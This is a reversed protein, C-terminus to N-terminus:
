NHKKKFIRILMKKCKYKVKKMLGYNCKNPYGGMKLWEKYNKGWQENKLGNWFKPQGYAHIIKAQEQKEIESPHPAYIEPAMPVIKLNFKQIVFDFIAQEPLYLKKAYRKVADYCFSYMEQYNELNDQLVFTGTGVCEANMDYDAIEEHLQTSVKKGSLMMKIGSKCPAFLESIDKQIVIDYDLWLVNKYENLLRFCEFKTFVMKSFYKLTGQNFISTDKVPFEYDIFRSPLISNLLQQQEPKIGDHIIVIEDALGPCIKKLDMMVCAVAFTHNSTLGFVVANKKNQM